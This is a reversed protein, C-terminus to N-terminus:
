AYKKQPYNSILLEARRNEDGKARSGHWGARVNWTKVQFNKFLKRINPSDNITMLFNGKIRFLVDALRQFDFDLDQAYEFDKDTNEYPPDLFFFTDASDYKKIVEAYDKNEIKTDKLAEKWDDLHRRLKDLPNGPKYIGTSKVVPKGSFGYCTQIIAHLLKDEKTKVPKDYYARVKALSDLSQNYKDFDLSANKIMNFRQAVGTDLDNLINEEAKAKNYFIAGSGAFLEVYRKHPPIIPVIDKRHYYKNGQRCFPTSLSPTRMEAGGKMKLEELLKALETMGAGIINVNGAPAQPQAPLRTMADDFDAETNALEEADHTADEDTTPPDSAQTNQLWALLSERFWGRNGGFSENLIKRLRRYQAPTQPVFGRILNYSWEWRYADMPTLVANAPVSAPPPPMPIEEEEDPIVNMMGGKYEKDNKPIILRNQPNFFTHKEDVLKPTKYYVPEPLLTRHPDTMDQQLEGIEYWRGDKQMWVEEYYDNGVQNRWIWRGKPTKVRVIDIYSDSNKRTPARKKKKVPEAAPSSANDYSPSPASMPRPRPIIDIMKAKPETSPMAQVLKEPKRRKDGTPIYGKKVDPDSIACGYAIGKKKAFEKVHEIWRNVM